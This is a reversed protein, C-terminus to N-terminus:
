TIFYQQLSEDRTKSYYSITCFEEGFSNAVLKTTYNKASITEIAQYGMISQCIYTVYVRATCHNM